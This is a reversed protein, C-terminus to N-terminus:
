GVRALGLPVVRAPEQSPDDEPCPPPWKGRQRSTTHSRRASFALFRSARTSAIRRQGNNIEVSCPPLRNPKAKREQDAACINPPASPCTSGVMTVNGKERQHRAHRHPGASSRPSGTGREKGASGGIKDWYRCAAVALSTLM